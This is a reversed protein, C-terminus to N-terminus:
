RNQQAIRSLRRTDNRTAPRMVVTRGYPDSLTYTNRKLSETWGNGYTVSVSNGQRRVDQVASGAQRRSAVSKISVRESLARLRVIDPGTAQRQVVRRGRPDRVRYRGNKIEERAGNAYRIEIGSSSVEIGSIAGSPRYSAGESSSGSNSSSPRAPDDDEDNEGDNKDDSEDDNQEGAGDDDDDDDDDEDDDDDDRGGDEDGDDDDRGGGDEDDDDDGGEDGSDEDDGDDDDDDDDKAVAASLEISPSGDQKLVFRVPALIFALTLLWLTIIQSPTPM